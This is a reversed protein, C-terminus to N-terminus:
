FFFAQPKGPVAAERAIKSEEIAQAEVSENGLVIFNNFNPMNEFLFVRSNKIVESEEFAM